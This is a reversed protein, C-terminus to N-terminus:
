GRLVSALHDNITRRIKAIWLSPLVETVPFVPRAAMKRTGTQHFKAYKTAVSTVVNTGIARSKLSRRTKRTKELIPHFYKRSRPAWPKGEVSARRQWPLDSLGQVVPAVKQAAALALRGAGVKHLKAAAARIADNSGSIKLSVGAM